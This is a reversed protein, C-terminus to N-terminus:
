EERFAVHWRLLAREIVSVVLYFLIGYVASIFIASWADPYKFLGADDRIRFGLGATSGGFYESVIAGIMALTTAVKLASFIYPLATPLRLKAFIQWQSAAYTQMLELSLPDVATLGRVTSIMSPFYVLVAVIAIKSAPNLAGFWNNMIPALAIIPIANIMIAIPLMARSFGAFRSSAIGTLIGAGCGFVFGWFANQFTNWGASVLRPYGEAFAGGIVSPKPLLFEQISFVDILVEWLVLVLVGVILAASQKRIMRIYLSLRTWPQWLLVAAILAVGMLAAIFPLAAQMLETPTDPRLREFFLAQDAGVIAAYVNFGLWLAAISVLAYVALVVSAGIKLPNRLPVNAYILVVSCVALLGALVPQLTSNRWASGFQTDYTLLPNLLHATIVILFIATLAVLDLGLTRSDVVREAADAYVVESAAEVDSAQHGTLKLTDESM